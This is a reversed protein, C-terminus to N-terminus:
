DTMFEIMERFDTVYEDCEHLIKDRDSNSHKEYVAFAKMGAKKVGYIAKLIDEFVICDKPEVQLKEACLLYIDPFEKGREVQTTDVIASFFDYVKNAKLCVEYLRKECTTAIGIKIANEKLYVLYEFAGEKLKVNKKYEEYAMEIWRRVIDEISEDLGCIDKTYKATEELTLGQINKAYDKPMPLDKEKFFKKDINEWVNMSDLLTGDLDFIVAKYDM